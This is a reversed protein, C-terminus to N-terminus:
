VWSKKGNQFKVVDPAFAKTNFLDVSDCLHIRNIGGQTQALPPKHVM